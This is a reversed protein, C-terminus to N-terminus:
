LKASYDILKKLEVKQEATIRYSEVAKQITKNHTWRDLRHNELVKVASEYQKALATAFYWAKMMKIYYNENKVGLVLDFHEPSFQEDLFYNMFCGIGFRITYTYNSRIWKKSLELVQPLNKKFVKPRFSDCTAWNDIFPLFKETQAACESFGAIQEILFAHLNNEEYYEHPLELFFEKVLPQETKFLEKALKRLVPTRVGIIKENSITPMLKSHFDKYASDQKQFLLNQIQTM